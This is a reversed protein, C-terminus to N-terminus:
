QFRQQRFARRHQGDPIGGGFDNREQFHELPPPFAARSETASRAFRTKECKRLFPCSRSRIFNMECRGQQQFCTYRSPFSKDLAKKCQNQKKGEFVVSFVFIGFTRLFGCIGRIGFFVPASTFRATRLGFGICRFLAPHFYFHLFRSSFAAFRVFASSRPKGQCFLPFANNYLSSNQVPQFHM